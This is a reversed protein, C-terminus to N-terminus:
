LHRVCIRVSTAGRLSTFAITNMVDHHVIDAAGSVVTITGESLYRHTLGIGEQCAHDEIMHGCKSGISQQHDAVRATRLHSTESERVVDNSGADIRNPGRTASRTVTGIMVDRRCGNRSAKSLRRESTIGDNATGM